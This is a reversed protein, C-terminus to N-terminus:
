PTKGPEMEYQRGSECTRKGYYFKQSIIFLSVFVGIIRIKQLNLIYYQWKKALM